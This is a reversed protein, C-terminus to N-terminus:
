TRHEARNLEYSQRVLTILQLAVGHGNCTKFTASISKMSYQQALPDTVHNVLIVTAFEHALPRMVGHRILEMDFYWVTAVTCVCVHMEEVSSQYSLWKKSENSKWTVYGVPM